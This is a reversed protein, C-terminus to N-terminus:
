RLPDNFQFEEGKNIRGGVKPTKGCSDAPMETWDKKGGIIRNGGERKPFHQMLGHGLPEDLPPLRTEDGRIRLHGDDDEPGALYAKKPSSFFSALHSLRRHDALEQPLAEILCVPRRDLLEVPDLVVPSVPVEEGELHGRGREGRLSYNWIISELPDWSKRAM